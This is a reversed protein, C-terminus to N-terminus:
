SKNYCSFLQKKLVSIAFFAGMFPLAGLKGSSYVPKM